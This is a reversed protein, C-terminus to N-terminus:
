GYVAGRLEHSNTFDSADPIQIADALDSLRHRKRLTKVMIENESLRVMMVRKGWNKRWEAPITIRGMSDVTRTVSEEMSRERRYSITKWVYIKPLDDWDVMLIM